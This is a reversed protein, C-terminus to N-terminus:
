PSNREATERIPELPLESSAASRPQPIALPRVVACAQNRAAQISAAGSYLVGTLPMLLHYCSVSSRVGLVAPTDIFFPLEALLYAMGARRQDDTIRADAALRGRLVNLVMDECTRHMLPDTSAAHELRAHLTRYVSNSRFESLASIRIRRDGTKSNELARRIRRRVGQLEKNARKRAREPPYGLSQITTDVHLDAYIIDIASFSRALWSMLDTLRAASFYSNGPSVGVLAHDGQDWLTQCRDTFPLSEFERDLGTPASEHVTSWGRTGLHFFCGLARIPPAIQFSNNSRNPTYKWYIRHRGRRRTPTRPSSARDVGGRGGVGDPLPDNGRFEDPATERPCGSM